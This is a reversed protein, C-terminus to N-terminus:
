LLVVPGVVVLEVRPQSLSVFRQNVASWFDRVYEKTTNMNGGLRNHLNTDVVVLIEPQVLSTSHVTYCMTMVCLLLKM